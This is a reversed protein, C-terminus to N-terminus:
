VETDAIQLIPNKPSQKAGLRELKNCTTIISQGKDSLKKGGDEYAEQAKELAKGIADYNRMFKGVRDLM